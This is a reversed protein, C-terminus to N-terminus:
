VVAGTPYFNTTNKDLKYMFDRQGCPRRGKLITMSVTDLYAQQETLSLDPNEGERWMGLVWDGTSEIDGSGKLQNLQPKVWVRGERSLQSLIVPVINMEKALPKFSRITDSLVSFESVGKMYQLYDVIIMDTQGEFKIANAVNIYKKIDDVSLTNQDIILLKKNLAKEVKLALEDGALLKQRVDEETTRMFMAIMRSILTAASMEMSFFIVNKKERFAAHLAMQIGAFTKGVSSYAAVVVVETKLFKGISQDLDAFGSGISGLTILEKFDAVAQLPSKFDSALSTQSKTGKAVEIIDNKDKGWKDALKEAIETRILPNSVGRLYEVAVHYQTEIDDCENVARMVCYVDIHESPLSAISIGAVHLDSFDKYGDPIQVIRVNLNSGYQIFKDRVQEISRRGADDNDPALMVTFQKDYESLEKSLMRIHSQTLTAGTYGACALGEDDASAVDFYGECLYIKGQKRMLRKARDFNYLLDGKAYYDNNKDNVYKPVGDRFNREAHAVMMGDSNRIPITISGHDTNFGYGFAEITENSLNRKNHLYDYAMKINRQYNNVLDTQEQYYSKAHQYEENHEYDIDYMDALQELATTYSVHNLAMHLEVITGGECAEFCYWKKSNCSFADERRADSHIPCKCRYQKGALRVRYGLQSLYDPIDSRLIISDKLRM